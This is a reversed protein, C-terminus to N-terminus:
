VGVMMHFIFLVVSAPSSGVLVDARNCPVEWAQMILTLLSNHMGSTMSMAAKACWANVVIGASAMRQQQQLTWPFMSYCAFYGWVNELM